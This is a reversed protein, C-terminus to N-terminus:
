LIELDVAGASPTWVAEKVMAVLVVARHIYVVRNRIGAISEEVLQAVLQTNVADRFIGSGNALSSHFCCRQLQRADDAANCRTPMHNPRVHDKGILQRIVKAISQCVAK